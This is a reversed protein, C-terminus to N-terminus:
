AWVLSILYVILSVTLVVTAGIAAWMIAITLDSHRLM